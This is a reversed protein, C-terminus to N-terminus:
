KVWGVIRTIIYGYVLFTAVLWLVGIASIDGGALATAIGFIASIATWILSFIWLAIGRVAYKWLLKMDLKM